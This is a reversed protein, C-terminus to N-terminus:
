EELWGASWKLSDLDVVKHDEKNLVGMPVRKKKREEPGRGPRLLVPADQTSSTKADQSSDEEARHLRGM